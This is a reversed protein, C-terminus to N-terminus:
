SGGDVGICTIPYAFMDPSYVYPVLKVRNLDGRAQQCYRPSQSLHTSTRTEKLSRKRVRRRHRLGSMEFRGGQRPFENM